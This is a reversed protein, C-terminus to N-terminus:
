RLKSSGAHGAMIMVRPWSVEYVLEVDAQVRFIGPTKLGGLSLIATTMWLLCAPIGSSADEQLALVEELTTNFCAPSFAALSQAQIELQTPARGRAGRESIATLQSLCYKAMMAIASENDEAAAKLM